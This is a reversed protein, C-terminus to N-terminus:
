WKIRFFGSVLVCNHSHSKRCKSITPHLIIFTVMYLINRVQAVPQLVSSFRQQPVYSDQTHLHIHTMRLMIYHHIYKDDVQQPILPSEAM